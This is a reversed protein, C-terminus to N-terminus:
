SLHCRGRLGGRPIRAHREPVVDPEGCLIGPAFWLVHGPSFNDNFVHDGTLLILKHHMRCRMQEGLREFANSLAHFEALAAVAAEMRPLDLLM